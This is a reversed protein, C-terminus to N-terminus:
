KRKLRKLIHPPGPAVDAVRILRFGLMPQKSPVLTLTFRGFVTAEVNRWEELYRRFGQYAQDVKEPSDIDLPIIAACTSDVLAIPTDIISPVVRSRVQVLRGHYRVPNKVLDCLQVILVGPEIEEVVTTDMERQEVVTIVCFCLGLCALPVRHM